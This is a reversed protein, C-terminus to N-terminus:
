KKKIVIMSDIKRQQIKLGKETKELEEYISDRRTWTTDIEMKIEKKIVIIRLTDQVNEALADPYAVIRMTDQPFNVPSDQYEPQKPVPQASGPTCSTCSALIVYMLFVLIIAVIRKKM